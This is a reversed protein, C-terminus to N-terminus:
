TQEIQFFIDNKGLINLNSSIIAQNESFSVYIKPCEGKLAGYFDISSYKKESNVKCTFNRYFHKDFDNVPDCKFTTFTLFNNSTQGRRNGECYHPLFISIIIFTVAHKRNFFMKLFSFFFSFNCVFFIISIIKSCDFNQL